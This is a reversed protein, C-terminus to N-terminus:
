TVHPQLSTVHPEDGFGVDLFVQLPATYHYVGSTVQGSGRLYIGLPLFAHPSVENRHFKM